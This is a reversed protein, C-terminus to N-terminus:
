RPLLGPIEGAIERALFGVPGVKQALRAGAEGHLWVAWLLANLPEAGRALLGGVVGALVDGSGSVGLGPAGGDYTWCEGAPTVVHSTVGKVLVISRYLGAARAGCGVPDEDVHRPDCDLLTALEDANPLLVPTSARDLAREHLPELSELLAVDLALAADSELLVDALRKCLDSRKVGPGAVVADIERAFEEVRDVAGGAFGGDDAEPLGLVMAEPMAAAIPMAASEVTAIRLKGAGARMAAAAALLAAGPVGRSGAIVLIRGKSEKGGDIVPPLPHKDLASRDLATGSM